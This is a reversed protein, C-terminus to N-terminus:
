ERAKGVAECAEPGLRREAHERPRTLQLALSPLDDVELDALRVEVGRSVNARFIDGMSM